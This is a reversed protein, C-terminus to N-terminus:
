VRKYVFFGVFACNGKSGDTLQGLGNMLYEPSDGDRLGDYTFDYFDYPNTETGRVDGQRM